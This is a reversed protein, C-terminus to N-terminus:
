VHLPFVKLKLLQLRLLWEWWTTASIEVPVWSVFGAILMMGLDDVLDFGPNALWLAM